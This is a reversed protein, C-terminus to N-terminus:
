CKAMLLGKILNRASKPGRRIKKMIYKLLSFSKLAAIGGKITAVNM